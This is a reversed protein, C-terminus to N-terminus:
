EELKLEPLVFYYYGGFKAMTGIGLHWESAKNYYTGDTVIIICGDDIMDVNDPTIETWKPLKWEHAICTNHRYTVVQRNPSISCFGNGKADENFFRACNGCYKNESM